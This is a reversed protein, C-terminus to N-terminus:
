FVLVLVLVADFTFGAGLEPDSDFLNVSPSSASMSASASQNATTSATSSTVSSAEGFGFADKRFPSGHVDPGHSHNSQSRSHNSGLSGSSNRNYAAVRNRRHHQTPPSAPPFQSSHQQQQPFAHELTLSAVSGISSASGADSNAGNATAFSSNASGSGNDGGNNVRQMHSRM